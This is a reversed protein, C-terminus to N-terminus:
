SYRKKKSKRRGGSQPFSNIAKDLLIFRKLLDDYYPKLKKNENEPLETLAQKFRIFSTTVLASKKVLKMIDSSKYMFIAKDLSTFKKYLDDLYPKLKEKEIEPLKGYAQM